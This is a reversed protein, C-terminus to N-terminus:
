LLRGGGNVREDTWGSVGMGDAVGVLGNRPLDSGAASESGAEAATDAALAALRAQECVNVAAQAPPSEASVNTAGSVAATSLWGMLQQFQQGMLAMQGFM